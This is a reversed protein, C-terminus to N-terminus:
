RGWKSPRLFDVMVEIAAALWTAGAAVGAPGLWRIGPGPPVATRRAAEERIAWYGPVVPGPSSGAVALSHRLRDELWSEFQETM